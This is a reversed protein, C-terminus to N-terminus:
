RRRPRMLIPIPKPTIVRQITQADGRMWTPGVEQPTLRRHQIFAGATEPTGTWRAPTEAHSASAEALDPAIATQSPRYYGNRKGLKPDFRKAGKAKVGYEANGVAWLTNGKWTIDRSYRDSVLEGSDSWIINNEFAINAPPLDKRYAELNKGGGGLWIARKKCNVMINHAILCDKVQRYKATDTTGTGLTMNIAHHSLNEFYNNIIIHNEDHISIGGRGNRFTNGEVIIHSGGRLSLLARCNEFTNYRYTNYSSKNSIIEIDGSANDFLCFAVLTRGVALRDFVPAHGIVLASQGNHSRRIIDKYYNHDFTNDTNARTPVASVIGRDGHHTGIFRSKLARFCSKTFLDLPDSNPVLNRARELGLLCAMTGRNQRAPFPAVIPLPSRGM